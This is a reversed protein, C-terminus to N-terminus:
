HGVGVSTLTSAVKQVMISSFNCGLDVNETSDTSKPLGCITVSKPTGPPSASTSVNNVTADLVSTVLLMYPRIFTANGAEYVTEGRHRFFLLDGVDITQKIIKM